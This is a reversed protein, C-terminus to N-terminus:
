YVVQETVVHLIFICSCDEEQKKQMGKDLGYSMGGESCASCNSYSAAQARWIIPSIACWQVGPIMMVM